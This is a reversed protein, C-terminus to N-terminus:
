IWGLDLKLDDWILSDGLLVRWFLYELYKSNTELFGEPPCNQQQQIKQNKKLSQEHNEIFFVLFCLIDLM